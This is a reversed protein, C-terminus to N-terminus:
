WGVLERKDGTGDLSDKPELSAGPQMHWVVGSGWTPKQMTLNPDPPSCESIHFFM